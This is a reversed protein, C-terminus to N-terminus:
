LNSNKKASLVKLCDGINDFDYTLRILGRSGSLATAEISISKIADPLTSTESAAWFTALVREKKLLGMMWDRPQNWISGAKLFNFSSKPPGYKQTIAGALGNFKNELDTGFSGSDIEKSLAQLKCLGQEPTLVVTYFDFDSHGNELTRSSYVFQRDGPAFNGQRMLEELPMGKHLGLPGANCALTAFIASAFLLKKL